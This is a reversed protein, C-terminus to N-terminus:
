PAEKTLRDLPWWELAGNGSLDKCLAQQRADDFVREVRGRVNGWDPHDYTVLDGRRIPKPM